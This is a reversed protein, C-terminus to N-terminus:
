RRIDRDTYNMSAVTYIYDVLGESMRKPLQSDRVDIEETGLKFGLRELNKTLLSLGQLDTTLGFRLVRLMEMGYHTLWLPLLHVSNGGVPLVVNKMELERSDAVLPILKSARTGSMQQVDLFLTPGGEQLQQELLAIARDFVESRASEFDPVNESDTILLNPDGDFGALEPMGMGELFGKQARFWCRPEISEMLSLTNFSIQSWGMQKTLDAYSNWFIRPSTVLEEGSPKCLQFQTTEKGGVLYRLVSDITVKVVDDLLIQCKGVLPTLNVEELRNDVLDIEELNPLEMLPWLNLTHLRNSRLRIRELKECEELPSLDISDLQNKSLEIVELEVNGRVVELNVHTAARMKLDIRTPDVQQEEQRGHLSEYIIPLGSM